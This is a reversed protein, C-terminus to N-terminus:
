GVLTQIAIYSAAAKASQEAQFPVVGLCPAPLRQKLTALNEEFRPMQGTASNAVWGVFPLGDRRIAEVTLMAHSLCGLTMDIVLIVGFGLERAIDSVYERDNLPVRWGGAGEVLAFDVPTMLAGRIKGTIGVANLRKGEDNAAIHPAIAAELCVPNVLQYPLQVTSARMLNLADENRLKGDHLESGAAIPKLGVTSLAQSQAAWLIAEAVYTKGVDTNTGAIFYRHKKM